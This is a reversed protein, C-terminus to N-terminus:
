RLLMQTEIQRDLRWQAYYQHIHALASQGSQVVQDSKVEYLHIRHIGEEFSDIKEMEMYQTVAVPLPFGFIASRETYVDFRSLERLPQMHNKGLAYAQRYFSIKVKSIVIKKYKEVQENAFGGARLSGAYYKESIPGHLDTPFMNLLEGDSTTIVSIIRPISYAIRVQDILNGPLSVNNPANVRWNARQRNIWQHTNSLFHQEGHNGRFLLLIRNGLIKEGVKELVLKALVIGNYEFHLVIQRQNIIETSDALSPLGIILPKYGLFLHSDTVNIKKNQSLLFVTLPSHLGDVCIYEQPITLGTILKKIQNRIIL